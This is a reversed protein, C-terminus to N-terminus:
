AELVAELRHQVELLPGELNVREQERRRRDRLRARLADLGSFQGRIGQRLLRSLARDAGHGSLLEESMAELIDGSSLDPGLPDQTGDWRSYRVRMSRAYGRNVPEAQGAAHGMPGAPSSLGTMVSAVPVPAVPADSEGIRSSRLTMVARNASRAPEVASASRRSASSTLSMTPSATARITWVTSSNPPVTFSRAPSPTSARKPAGM